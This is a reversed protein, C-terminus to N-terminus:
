RCCAGTECWLSRPCDIREMKVLGGPVRAWAPDGPERDQGAEDASPSPGLRLTRPPRVRPPTLRPEDPTFHAAPWEANLEMAALGLTAAPPQSPEPPRDFPRSLIARFMLQGDGLRV